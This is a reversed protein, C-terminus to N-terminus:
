KRPLDEDTAVFKESAEDQAQAELRLGLYGLGGVVVLAGFTIWFM